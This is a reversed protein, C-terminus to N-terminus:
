GMPSSDAALSIYTNRDLRGAPNRLQVYLLVLLFSDFEPQQIGPM